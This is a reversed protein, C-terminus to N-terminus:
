LNVKENQLVVDPWLNQAAQIVDYNLPRYPLHADGMLFHAAFQQRKTQEPHAAKYAAVLRAIAARPYVPLNPAEERTLIAEIREETRTVLEEYDVITFGKARYTKGPHGVYDVSM